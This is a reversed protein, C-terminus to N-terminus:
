APMGGRGIRRVFFLPILWVFTMAAGALWGVEYGYGAVVDSFVIPTWFGVYSIANVWNIAMSEYEPHNEKAIKQIISTIGVYCSAAGCGVLFAGLVVVYVNGFAPMTLGVSLCTVAIITLRKPNKTKAYIRGAPASILLVGVLWLSAILGATGLDVGLQDHLYLVVFYGFLGTGVTLSVFVSGFVLYLRNLMLKRLDAIKPVFETRKVDAPVLIFLLIGSVIGIAGSLFISPQWGVLEALPAWVSLGVVGGIGYVLNMLAVAQEGFGSRYHRVALVFSPGLIAAMGVGVLFRLLIIQSLATVFATLAIAVGFLLTGFGITKKAGVKAAIYGAPALSFGNGVYFASTNLALGSLGGGLEAPVSPYVSAITYNNMAYAFSFFLLSFMARSNITNTVM